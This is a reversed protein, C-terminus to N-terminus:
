SVAGHAKVLAADLDDVEVALSGTKVIAAEDVVATLRGDPASADGGSAGDSEGVGRGFAPGGVAPAASPAPPAAVGTEGVSNGVTSLVGAGGSCAAVLAVLGVILMARVSSIARAHM